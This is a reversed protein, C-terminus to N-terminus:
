ALEAFTIGDGGQEPEPHWIHKVAPYERLKMKVAKRLVGTGKGHLIQITRANHVLAQDVFEQVADLAEDYRMGRIDLKSDFRQPSTATEVKVSRERQLEMPERARELERVPVTLKIQGAAVIAKKDDLSVIQGSLEGGRIRVFDGEQLPSDDRKKSVPAAHFVEEHLEKVEEAIHQRRAQAARALERAKELNKAEKIERILQQLELQQKAVAQLAQERAELKLKKRRYELEGHLRDYSEILHQLKKEKERLQQHLEEVEQKERQLDVLLQDVAQEAKGTRKKAYAIVKPPLGSKQAIEFAYSSGPRGVRLQYTPSLTDKDFTMAGNVLGRTKFAFIKLNSYHTTIVGYVGRENLEKLIAEAIAGGMKPDTGSGFEDILVLTQEDAHELFARMNKLRSSYTSLDDELSQQDGIDAFVKTFIGVESVEDAPILMGGQVMLQLLGVAKMLVSKGGANPGSLVLIRNPGHLTLDFPVTERGQEKNKLYLLPHRGFQIGLRPQRVVRPMYANMKIAVRAKALIIDYRVILELYQGLLATHPRLLRCLDRLLRWKERREEIQLDFIDNNIEIVAEPEIYATKGTTSEDHIIGRIKRKHEAPVSLVRRGNRISEVNDTLWGKQRLQQVVIRFQRDLENTKAIIARHIRALEPSADPRIHGEEDLVQGIAEILSDDWPLDAMLAALRPYHEKRVANFFWVLDRMTRLVRWIRMLAEEPLVFEEIALQRLDESLDDYHGLPFVEGKELATKMEHVEQLRALIAGRRTDFTPIRARAAGVEGQCSQAVLELVKDYELQHLLDDPIFMM